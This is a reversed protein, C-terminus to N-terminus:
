MTLDKYKQVKKIVNREGSIKPDILMCTGDENQWIIDPKNNHITRNTPM